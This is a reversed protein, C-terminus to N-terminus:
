VDAKRCAFDVEEFINKKMQILKPPLKVRRRQDNMGGVPKEDQDM